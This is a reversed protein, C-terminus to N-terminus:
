NTLKMIWPGYKEDYWSYYQVVAGHLEFLARVGSIGCNSKVYKYERIWSHMGHVHTCHAGNIWQCRFAEELDESKQNHFM